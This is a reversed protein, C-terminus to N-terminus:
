ESLTTYLEGHINDQQVRYVGLINVRGPWGDGPIGGTIILKEGTVVWLLTYGQEHLHKLFVERNILLAGPGTSTVSPDFAPAWFFEGLFVRYTPDSDPLSFGMMARWQTKM